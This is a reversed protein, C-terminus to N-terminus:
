EWLTAEAKQSEFLSLQNTVIPRSRDLAAMFDNWDTFAGMLMVVGALNFPPDLYILEVSESNIGRLIDLNDGTWVTRNRFNPRGKM